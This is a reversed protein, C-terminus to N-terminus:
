LKIYLPFVYSQPAGESTITPTVSNGTFTASITGSPTYPGQVVTTTALTSTLALTTTAAVGSFGAAVSGTPTIAGLTSKVAAVQSGTYSGAALFYGGPNPSVVTTTGATTNSVTITTGDCAHWGTDSSNNMTMQVALYPPQGPTYAWATGSWTWSRIYTANDVFIFGADNAGLDTPLSAYAASYEEGAYVWLGSVVTYNHGTQTGASSSLVLATSNTVSAISYAVGNITIPTGAPWQAANFGSGTNIFKNGSAWTVATGSTNVTGSATEVVYFVRRDSEYFFTGVYYNVSPYHALRNSHSDYIIPEFDNILVWGAGSWRYTLLRDNAYFLFGTDNTGLDGPISAYNAYMTGSVWQWVQLTSPLIYNLYSVTRDTEYYYTGAPENPALYTSLRQLHTGQVTVVEAAPTSGGGGGSSGGGSPTLTTVTNNTISSSSSIGTQVSQLQSAFLRLIRNLRAPDNAKLDEQTVVPLGSLNSNPVKAM